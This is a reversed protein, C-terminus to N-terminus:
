KASDSSSRPTLDAAAFVNSIDQPSPPDIDENDDMLTEIYAVESTTQQQINM